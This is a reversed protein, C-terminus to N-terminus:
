RNLVVHNRPIENEDLNVFGGNHRLKSAIDAALRFFVCLIDAVLLM